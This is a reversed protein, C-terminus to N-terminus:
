RSAGCTPALDLVGTVEFAPENNAAVTKSAGESKTPRGAVEVLHNLHDKLQAPSGSLRYRAGSKKETLFFGQAGGESGGVLCGVLTPQTGHRQKEPNQDSRTVPENARQTQQQASQRYDPQANVGLQHQPNNVEARQASSAIREADAPNQATQEPSPPTGPGSSKNQPPVGGSGVNTHEGPQQAKGAETQVGPTVQDATSTSTVPFTTGKNGTKGTVPQSQQGTDPSPTGSQAQEQGPAKAAESGASEAKQSKSGQACTNAVPQIHTVEFNLAKRGANASTSPTVTGTIAVEHGVHQKFLADNGRLLYTAGTHEDTLAYQSTTDSGMLCGQVTSPGQQQAMLLSVSALLLMSLAVKKM